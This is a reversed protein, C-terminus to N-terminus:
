AGVEESVRLAQFAAHAILTAGAAGPHVGDFRFAEPHNATAAHVDILGVGREAAIREVAARIEALSPESMGYRVSTCNGLRFLAPPTMVWIRPRPELSRYEDVLGRYDSAFTAVDKWNDGRADNTGLMLLVVDPRFALSADFEPANRYPRDADAQAAHGNVGFNHVVFRDGLMRALQAPYSNRRRRWVFTGRTISDGACAVRTTEGAASM